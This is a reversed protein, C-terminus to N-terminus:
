HAAPAAADKALRAALDLAHLVHDKTVPAEHGSTLALDRLRRTARVTEYDDAGILGQTVLDHAIREPSKETVRRDHPWAVITLAEHVAAEAVIVATDPMGQGLYRTAQAILDDLVKFRGFESPRVAILELRWGPEKDVREALTVLDNSGRLTDGPRVLVVVRDDASEAVLDPELGALFGPLPEGRAPHSIRYGQKVYAREIRRLEKQVPPESSQTM